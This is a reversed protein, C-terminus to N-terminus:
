PRGDLSVEADDEIESKLAEYGQINQTLFRLTISAKDALGKPTLIFTYRRKDEAM